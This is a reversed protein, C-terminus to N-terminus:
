QRELVFAGQFPCMLPDITTNHGIPVANTHVEARMDITVTSNQSVTLTQIDNFYDQAQHAKVIQDPQYIGYVDVVMSNANSYNYIAVSCKNSDYANPIVRVRDSPPYDHIVAGADGFAAQWGAFDLLADSAGMFVGSVNPSYYINDAFNYQTGGAPLKVRICRAQQNAFTNGTCEIQDYTKFSCCGQDANNYDSGYGKFYNNRVIINKSPNTWRNFWWWTDMSENDEFLIDQVAYNLGGDNGFTHKYNCKGFINNKLHYNKIYNLGSSHAHFGYNFSGLFINNDILTHTGPHNHTYTSHATGNGNLLYGGNYLLCGYLETLAGGYAIVCNAGDHVACNRIKINQGGTININPPTSPSQTFTRTAWDTRTFELGDVIVHRATQFAFSGDIVVTGPTHATIRIPDTSAGWFSVSFDGTYIGPLLTIVEGPMIRQSALAQSLTVPNDITLGAM